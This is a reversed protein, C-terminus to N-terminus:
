LIYIILDTSRRIKHCRFKRKGTKLMMGHIFDVNDHFVKTIMTMLTNGFNERDLSRAIKDSAKETSERRKVHKTLDEFQTLLEFMSNRADTAKESAPGFEHKCHPGICKDCFVIQCDDCFLMCLKLHKECVKPKYGRCDCIEHGKKIHLVALCQECFWSKPGGDKQSDCTKCQYSDTENLNERCNTCVLVITDSDETLLGEETGSEDNIFM